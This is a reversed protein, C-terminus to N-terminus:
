AMEDALGRRLGAVVVVSGVVFGAYVSWACARLKIITDVLFMPGAPWEPM